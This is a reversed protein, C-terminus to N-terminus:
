NNSQQITVKVNVYTVQHTELAQKSYHGPNFMVWITESWQLFHGGIDNDIDNM